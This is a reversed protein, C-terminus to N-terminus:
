EVTIEVREAKEFDEVEVLRGNAGAEIQALLAAWDLGALDPHRAAGLQLGAHVWTLPLNVVARDQGTVLSTIRIRLWRERRAAPAGPKILQAAEAASLQGAAVRELVASTLNM